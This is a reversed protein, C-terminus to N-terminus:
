LSSKNFIVKIQEKTGFFKAGNPNYTWRGCFCKIQKINNSFRTEFVSFTYSKKGRKRPIWRKCRKCLIHIM